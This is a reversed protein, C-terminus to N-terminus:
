DFFTDFGSEFVGQFKQRVLDASAAMKEVEVQLEKARQVIAPNGTQAAVQAYADAVAQLDVVTQARADSVARLSELETKSGDAAAIQARDTAIALDSQIRGGIEQLENLKGQAVIIDRLSSLNNLAKTAVTAAPGDNKEQADALSTELKQKLQRNQ